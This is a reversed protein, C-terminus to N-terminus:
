VVEEGVVGGRGGSTSLSGSEYCIITWNQNVGIMSMTNRGHEFLMANFPQSRAQRNDRVQMIPDSRSRVEGHDGSQM